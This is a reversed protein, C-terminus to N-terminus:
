TDARNEGNPVELEVGLGDAIRNVYAFYSVCAVIDHIGLDDFGAERLAEIDDAVISQPHQTLKVSYDLMVRDPKTLAASPYDHQLTELWADLDSADEFRKERNLLARLGRAHHM